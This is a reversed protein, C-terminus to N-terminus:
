KTPVHSNSPTSGSDGSPSAPSNRPESVIRWISPQVYSLRVAAVNDPFLRVM